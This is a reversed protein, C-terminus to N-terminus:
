GRERPVGGERASDPVAPVELMTAPLLRVSVPTVKAEVNAAPADVHVRVLAGAAPLEAPTIGSPVTVRLDSADLRAVASEPGSLQVAAVAPSAVTGASVAIPVGTVTRLVLPEVTGTVQVEEVSLSVGLGATDVRISRAFAGSEHSLDIPRTLVERVEAVRAAPGSVRVYRPEVALSDLLVMGERPPASVQVRVPVERSGLPVFRLRVSSPRVDQAAAQLGAPVHVMRPDLLFVQNDDADTVRLLLRPRNVALEWLDRGPGAFRVEVENPIPGEVLRMGPDRLDVDISVPLWQTTVQDASVVIWLLVALAFAALKLQWNQTLRHLPSAM